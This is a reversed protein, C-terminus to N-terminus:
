RTLTITQSETFTEGTVRLVYVGAALSTGDLSVDRETNAPLREELLTAVQRGVADYLTARVTQPEAVALTFRADGPSPNPAVASLRHTGMIGSPDDEGAVGMRVTLTVPITYSAGESENTLLTMDATYTGPALNEADFTLTVDEQSGASVIGSSPTADVWLSSFRIALEDELYPANEVVLLGDTGDANEIGVTADEIDEEDMDLYQYTIDGAENLIVQFTYFPPNGFSFGAVDIWSIVFRGDEMHQYRINGGALPNLDDWFVAIINNPEDESPITGNTYDINEGTFSLAGNSQITISDYLGDYFPLDFPLDISAHDDDSLSVSTGTSSIDIWEFNPGNPENSDIWKYGFSDPGGEDLLQATGRVSSHSQDGTKKEQSSRDQLSTTGEPSGDHREGYSGRLDSPTTREFGINYLVSSPGNSVISFSETVTDGEDLTVVIPDTSIEATPRALTTTTVSNSVPSANFSDDIAKIAFHYTTGYDLDDIQISEETGSSAPEPLPMELTPAAEWEVEDNIPGETSYRIEYRVATGKQNDDGTATFTLVVFAGDTNAVTLDTIAAPPISEPVVFSEVNDDLINNSGQDASIGFGRRAFGEWLIETHAGDYLVEDAALIADRNDIFGPSCPQIKLAETVLNLMIQNGATGDANYLDESFGYEEIMDWTVEWLATAFVFGIGHPVSLSGTATDGYTYDNISFDTSYPAPRIGTGDVGEGTAYVGVGRRQERTDDADMTFMLAYYDSWGEGAQEVNDLCSATSAGGTLRVTLGHVYEHVPIVADFSGDRHPTTQDFEYMQMVGPEGDPLTLFNANNVCGFPFNCEDIGDQTQADVHDGGVGEGTYNTEQFNGSAEDFGYQYLVDHSINNWYFLNTVSAEWSERPEQEFDVPFDFILDQGGDPSGTPDDDPVDDDNHDTFALVNNGRTITYEAGPTGDTDHWGYPSAVPHAPDVVTTRGDAPPPNESHIPSEVPYPYVTYSAGGGHTLREPFLIPSTASPTDVGTISRAHDHAGAESHGEPGFTCSLVRNHNAIVSGTVADVYGFWAHGEYLPLQTAWALRLKEADDEVYILEAKSTTSSVGGGNLIVEPAGFANTKQSVVRFPEPYTVGAQAAVARAAESASLSPASAARSRSNASTLSVLEGMASRVRGNRDVAVTLMDPGGVPVGNFRQRIYVYTIGSRPSTSRDTVILDQVDAPSLSHRAANTRVYQLAADEAFVNSQGYAATSALLVGILLLAYRRLM